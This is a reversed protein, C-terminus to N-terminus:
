LESTFFCKIRAVIRGFNEVSPSGPRINISLYIESKDIQLSGPTYVSSCECQRLACCLTLVDSLRVLCLSVLFSPDKHKIDRAIILGM